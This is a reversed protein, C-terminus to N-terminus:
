HAHHEPLPTSSAHHSHDMSYDQRRWLMVGLMSALMLAHGPGLVASDSLRGVAVLLLLFLFPAYMAGGMEAIRAWTHSRYRMAVAMGVTMYGPMLLALVEESELVEGHGLLTCILSFLGGLIAMGAIMAVFMELVPRIFSHTPSRLRVASQIAPRPGAIEAM